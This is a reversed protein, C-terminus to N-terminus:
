NLAAAVGGAAAPGGIRGVQGVQLRGARELSRAVICQVAEALTYLPEWGLQARAKRVSFVYSLRCIALTAPSLKGIDANLSRGYCYTVLEVLFGLLDACRPPLHQVRM